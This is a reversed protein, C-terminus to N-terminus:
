DHLRHVEEECIQLDVVECICSLTKIVLDLIIQFSVTIAKELMRTKSKFSFRSDQRFAM